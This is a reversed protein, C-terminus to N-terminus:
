GHSLLWPSNEGADGRLEDAVRAPGDFSAIKRCLDDAAQIIASKPKGHTVTLQEAERFQVTPLSPTLEAHARAIAKEFYKLTGPPDGNRSQMARQVGILICEPRWHENFWGQITLPAGVSLPHHPDLGMAVLVKTATEFAEESILSKPKAREREEGGGIKQEQGEGEPSRMQTAVQAPSDNGTSRNQEARKKRNCSVCLVQLNEQHGNGGQSIPTIHDIELRETAQCRLCKHGDREMVAARVADPIYRSPWNERKGAAKVPDHPEIFGTELLLDLDIPDTANIKNALWKADLPLKNDMRSALLWICILQGKVADPLAGFEYNELLENYLKIWPPSRDKYHQFRDFNKVSFTKV